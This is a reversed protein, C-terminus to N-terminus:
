ECANRITKAVSGGYDLTLQQYRVTLNSAEAPDFNQGFWAAADPLRLQELQKAQIETEGSCGARVIANFQMQFGEDSEAIAVTQDASIQAAASEGGLGCATGILMLFIGILSRGYLNVSLNKTINMIPLAYRSIRIINRRGCAGSASLLAMRKDQRERHGRHHDRGQEFVSFTTRSASVCSERHRETDRHQIRNIRVGECGIRVTGFWLPISM